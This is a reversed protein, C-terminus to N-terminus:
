NANLREIITSAPCVNQRPAAAVAVAVAAAGTLENPFNILLRKTREEDYDYDNDDYNYDYYYNTRHM